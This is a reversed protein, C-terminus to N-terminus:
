LCVNNFCARQKNNIFYGVKKGNFMIALYKENKRSVREELDFKVGYVQISSDKMYDDAALVLRQRQFDSYGGKCRVNIFSNFRQGLKKGNISVECYKNGSDQYVGSSVVKVVAGKFLDKLRRNM